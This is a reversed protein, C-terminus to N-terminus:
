RESLILDVKLMDLYSNTGNLKGRTKIRQQLWDISPNTIPSSNDQVENDSIEPGMAVMEMWPDQANM